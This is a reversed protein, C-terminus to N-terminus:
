KYGDLEFEFADQVESKVINLLNEIKKAEEESKPVHSKEGVFETNTAYKFFPLTNYPFIKDDLMLCKYGYYRPLNIEILKEEITEIKEIKENWKRDKRAENILISRDEIVPYEPVETFENDAKKQQFATTLRRSIPATKFLTKCRLM